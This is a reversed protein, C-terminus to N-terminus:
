SKVNQVMTENEEEMLNYPYIFFVKIAFPVVGM